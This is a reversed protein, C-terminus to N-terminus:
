PTEEGTDAAAAGGGDGAPGAEDDDEGPLGGVIDGEADLRFRWPGVPDAVMLVRDGFEVSVEPRMTGTAEISCAAMAGNELTRLDTIKSRTEQLAKTAKLATQLKQLIERRGSAPVQRLVAELKPQTLEDVGALLKMREVADSLVGARSQLERLRATASPAMRCGVGTPEMAATGINRARIERGAYTAGGVISGAGRTAGETVTVKGGAHVQANFLSHGVLLDGEAVVRANQVLKTEVNAGSVVRAEAGVIGLAVSVDSGAEVVGGNEVRGGVTVTGGARVHFGYLVSGGIVVDGRTEIHGSEFDVDGNVTVVALVQIQDSRSVVSGDADAYYATPGDAEAPPEARVGDGAAFSLDKGDTAPLERGRVNMGVAGKTAPHLDGLHTGASVPVAKNRDRFEIAGSPLVRGARPSMDLAPEFRADAGHRPPEGEVVVVCAPKLAGLERTVREIAPAQLGHVVGAGALLDTIWGSEPPPCPHILPFQVIAAQLDDAAIWLPPVVYLRGGTLCPYGYVGARYAGDDDDDVVIGEGPEPVDAAAAGPQAIEHGHVTKGPEGAAGAIVRAVEQGPAVLLVKLSAARAQEINDSHLAQLLDAGPPRDDQVRQLYTYTVSGDTGPVPARGRAVVLPAALGGTTAQELAKELEADDIGFVVGQAHLQERLDPVSVLAESAHLRLATLSATMGDDPIDLCLWSRGERGFSVRQRGHAENLAEDLDDDAAGDDGVDVGLAGLVGELSEVAEAETDAGPSRAEPESRGVRTARQQRRWRRQTRSETGDEDGGLWRATHSLAEADLGHRPAAEGDAPEEPDGM